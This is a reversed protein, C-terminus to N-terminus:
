PTSYESLGAVWNWICALGSSPHAGAMSQWSGTGPRCANIWDTGVIGGVKKRSTVRWQVVGNQRWGARCGVLTSLVVSMWIQQPQILPLNCVRPLPRLRVHHLPYPPLWAQLTRFVTRILPQSMRIRCSNQSPISYWSCNSSWRINWVMSRSPAPKMRNARLQRLRSFRSFEVLPEVGGVHSLVRGTGYEISRSWWM